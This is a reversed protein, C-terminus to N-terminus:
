RDMRVIKPTFTGLVEVLDTQNGMVKTIDKYAMPAEDINGGILTVDNTKLVKKIESQTFMSKCKARSFLRGAGHSASNLSESNGKGKVIYGPATMSGPIIGLQGEAAPTAGKRHVICEQGNVMEKWAFNHHNEITVVVRKGIAKAIRRHIDDHCAKAYEGALNMALWYEQGDHTNLDLWALHQVNKPLPCQKTALYTYHKAINAGLGRSGSHSLVAFYEGVGLKWENEPNDIKAIGFEVFHNGGGSSGLQKYAKPLLNKLLPIDQFESKYFVEHDAKTAHTENMGFKTNDKLIAQLQHEKGKFYSAPIDFISLSMRCGIDVGVGYPIVANDTALVGGIPLGYGSHADPMLAGAVSIPLKLSDYLQFKAQQDIENEGFITFPARTTKLQHMRVHVPNVLGEAVKGWTGHGEFKEPHLLVEKAETLISEKKERKRYRNIQGLAINISNNKPFGLKILDKGSLKNGM